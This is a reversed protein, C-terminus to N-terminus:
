FQYMYEKHDDEGGVENRKKALKQNHWWLLGVYVMCIVAGLLTIALGTRFATPYYPTEKKIFVNSSVFNACNGIGLIVATGVALSSRGRLNNALWATTMTMQIFTGASMCFLSFYRVAASVRLGESYAINIVWGLLVCLIGALIFPFRRGTRGALFAGLIQFVMGALWVPISMAQATAAKWGLETLITPIFASMSAATMDCCFFMLTSHAILLPHRLQAVM